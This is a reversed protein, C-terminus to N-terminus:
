LTIGCHPAPDKAERRVLNLPEDIVRPGAHGENWPHNSLPVSYLTGRHVCVLRVILSDSQHLQSDYTLDLEKHLEFHHSVCFHKHGDDIMHSSAPTSNITSRSERICHVMM